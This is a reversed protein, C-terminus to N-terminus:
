PKSPRLLIPDSMFPLWLMMFLMRARLQAHARVDSGGGESLFDLVELIMFLRGSEVEDRLCLKGKVSKTRCEKKLCADLSCFGGGRSFFVEMLAALMFDTLRGKGCGGCGESVLGGRM